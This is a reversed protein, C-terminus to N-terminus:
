TFATESAFDQTNSPRAAGEAGKYMVHYNKQLELQCDRKLPQTSGYTKQESQKSPRHLVNPQSEAANYSATEEVGPHDDLL